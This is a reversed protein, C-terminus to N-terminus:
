MRLTVVFFNTGKSINMYNLSKRQGSKRRFLEDNHEKANAMQRGYVESRRNVSGEAPWGQELSDRYRSAESRISSNVQSSREKQEVESQRSMHSKREKEMKHGMESKKRQSFNEKQFKNNFYNERAIMTEIKSSDYLNGSGIMDVRNKLDGQAGKEKNQRVWEKRKLVELPYNNVNMPDNLTQLFENQKGEM